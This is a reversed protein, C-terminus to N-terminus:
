QTTLPTRMRARELAQALPYGDQTKTIHGRKTWTKITELPTNHGLAQLALRTEQITACYVGAIQETTLRLTKEHAPLLTLAHNHLTHTETQYDLQADPDLDPTHTTLWKRAAQPSTRDESWAIALRDTMELWSLAALNCPTKRPDPKAGPMGDSPTTGKALTARVYPYAKDITAWMAQLQATM